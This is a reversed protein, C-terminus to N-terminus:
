RVPPGARRPRGRVDGNLEVVVEIEWKRPAEAAWSGGIFAHAAADEVSAVFRCAGRGSGVSRSSSPRTSLAGRKQGGEMKGQDVFAEVLVQGDASVPM